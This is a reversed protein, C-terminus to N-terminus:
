VNIVTFDKCIYCYYCEKEQTIIEKCVKCKMEQSFDIDINITKTEKLNFIFNEDNINDFFHKFNIYDNTRLMGSIEIKDVKNLQFYYYNDILKISFNMNYNFEFLYDKNCIDNIFNSLFVFLGLITSKKNNEQNAFTQVPDKKAYLYQIYSKIEKIIKSYENINSVENKNNLFFFYNRNKKRYYNMFINIAGGDKIDDSLYIM